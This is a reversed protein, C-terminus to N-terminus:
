ERLSWTHLVNNNVYDGHQENLDRSIIWNVVSLKYWKVLMEENEGGRWDMVVM